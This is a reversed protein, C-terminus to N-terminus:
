HIQLLMGNRTFILEVEEELKKSDGTQRSDAKLVFATGKPFQNVKDELLDLSKASYQAIQYNESIGSRYLTVNYPPGATAAIQKLQRCIQDGVCRQLVRSILNSDALWGQNAILARGLNEGLGMEQWNGTLSGAKRYELEDGKGAWAETWQVYRDWIPKEADGNGYNMLYILADMAVQNDPDNIAQIAAETLVPGAAHASVEQFLAHNCGTKGKGRADVARKLLPRAGEPDFRVLYALAAAQPACAWEGVKENLKSSVQAVAAGAGFRVLLSALVTEQEFDNSQLFAEAWVSEFQPLAQKPLFSLSDATLSPSGSGIESLVERKAGEPDLEYWRRLAASKLDRRAYATSENSGPNSLPRRALAQLIPLMTESRLLDWNYLLETTQREESLDILSSSLVSALQSKMQPTLGVPQFGLLTEVTAARAKGEKRPLSALASQWAARNFSEREEDLKAPSAHPNVQLVSMTILFWNSIPFHPDDVKRNMAELGVERMSDPLGILGFSCQSMMDPKDERVCAALEEIADKTALYRLDAIADTRGQPQMGQTAPEANLEKLIAGLTAKQWEKTAAIIHLEISNSKIPASNDMMPVPSKGPEGTRRSTVTVKYVGPQDFRVRENLNLPIDIPKTSLSATSSLGGGMFGGSSAFYTALPDSWGRSPSVEFSEYSMRGSRDYSALTIEYQEPGTFSLKLPIREGV